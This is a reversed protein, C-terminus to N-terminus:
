LLPASLMLLEGAPAAVPVDAASNAYATGAPAPLLLLLLLLDVLDPREAGAAAM